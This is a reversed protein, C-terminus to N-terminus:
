EPSNCRSGSGTTGCGGAADGARVVGDALASLEWVPEHGTERRHREVCERAPQLKGFEDEFECDPCRVTAHSPSM